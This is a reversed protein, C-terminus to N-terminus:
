WAALAGGRGVKDLYTPGHSRLVLPVRLDECVHMPLDRLEGLRAFCSSALTAAVGTHKDPHVVHVHARYEVALAHRLDGHLDGFLDEPCKAAAIRKAFDELSTKM